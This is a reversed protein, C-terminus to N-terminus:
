SYFYGTFPHVEDLKLTELEESNLQTAKAQKVGQLFLSSSEQFDSMYANITQAYTM